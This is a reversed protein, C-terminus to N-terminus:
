ETGRKVKIQLSPMRWADSGLFRVSHDQFMGMRLHDPLEESVESLVIGGEIESLEPINVVKCGKSLEHTSM